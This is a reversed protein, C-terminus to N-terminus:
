KGELQIWLIYNKQNHSHAEQQSYHIKEIEVIRNTFKSDILSMFREIGGIEDAWPARGLQTPSKEIFHMDDILVIMKGDFSSLAEIEGVLPACKSNHGHADLFIVFSQSRNIEGELLEKLTKDSSGQIFKVKHLKDKHKKTFRDIYNQYFELSYINEFCEFQPKLINIIGDGKNLGTEIFMNYDYNNVLFRELKKITKKNIPM